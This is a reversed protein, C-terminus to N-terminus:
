LHVSGLKEHAWFSITYNHAPNPLQHFCNIQYNTTSLKYNTIPLKYNSKPKKKIDKISKYTRVLLDAEQNSAVGTVLLKSGLPKFPISFPNCTVM